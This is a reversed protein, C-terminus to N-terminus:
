AAIAGITEGAHVLAKKFKEEIEFVLKDMLEPTFKHKICM